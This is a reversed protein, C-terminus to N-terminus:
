VRTIETPRYLLDALQCPGLREFESRDIAGSPTIAAKSTGCGPCTDTEFCGGKAIDEDIQESTSDKQVFCKKSVVFREIPPPISENKNPL